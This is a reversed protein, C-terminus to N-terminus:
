LQYLANNVNNGNSDNNRLMSKELFPKVESTVLALLIICPSWSSLAVELSGLTALVLTGPQQGEVRDVVSFLAAPWRLSVMAFPWDSSQCRM